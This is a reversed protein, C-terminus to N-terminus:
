ALWYARGKGAAGVQPGNAELTQYLRGIRPGDNWIIQATAPMGAFFRRAEHFQEEGAEGLSVVIESLCDIQM